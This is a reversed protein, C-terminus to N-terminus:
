LEVRANEGVLLNSVRSNDKMMIIKANRGIVSDCLFSTQYIQCGELIISREIKSDEITAGAGISVLPGVLSNKIICGRSISVPGKVISETIQTDPQIEVKGLIHSRSDINGEIDPEIYNDLMAGNAALLGEKTGADFWWGKLIYSDVKKGIEVLKQIADTIELEGRFSPKTQAIAEHIGPSFLYGGVIALNSEPKEPKEVLRVVEGKENFEAVGFQRADEVKKLMILADSGCTKFQNVLEGALCDIINDGLLLLFCSSGLFGQAMKVAHALGLPEPQDIYTIGVGWRSGDGVAERIGNGTEPSVVIGIDSIDAEKIQELVYFLVPKNALPILHKPLTNTLPKLRTGRGGCLILAKMM